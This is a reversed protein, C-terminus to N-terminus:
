KITDYVKSILLSSIFSIVIMVVILLIKPQIWNILPSFTIATYSTAFLAHFFWMNMSERGLSILSDVLIPLRVINFIAVICLAFIPVTAFDLLWANPIGRLFFIAIYVACLLVLM